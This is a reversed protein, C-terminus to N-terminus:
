ALENAIEEIKALSDAPTLSKAQLEAFMEQYPRVAERDDIVDQIMSGEAYVVDTDDPDPFGVIIFSAGVSYDPVTFPLVQATVQHSRGLEVLHRLQHRLCDPGGIQRRLTAEDLVAEVRPPDTRDLVERQRRMRLEVVLERAPATAHDIPPAAAVIARAYRETQLLGPICVTHYLHLGSAEAELGIFAAFSPPIADRYPSWWARRRALRALAVLDRVQEPDTLQYHQLLAKVDNTSISVTGAEIRILKSLSWDMASAVQEQTLGAKERARRLVSRLRRRGITPGHVTTM